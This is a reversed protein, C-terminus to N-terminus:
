DRLPDRRNLFVDRDPLEFDELPGYKRQGEQVTSWVSDTKAEPQIPLIQVLPQGRRTIMVPESTRAVRDCIESLKNKVEFVGM